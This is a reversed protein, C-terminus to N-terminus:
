QGSAKKERKQNLRAKKSWRMVTLLGGWRAEWDEDGLGDQLVADVMLVSWKARVATVFCWRKLKQGFHMLLVYRAELSGIGVELGM